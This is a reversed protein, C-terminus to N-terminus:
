NSTKWPWGVLKFTPFILADDFALVSKQCSFARSKLSSKLIFYTSLISYSSLNRDLYIFECPSFFNVSNKDFKKEKSIEIKKEQLLYLIKQLGFNSLHVISCLIFYAQVILANEPISIYVCM